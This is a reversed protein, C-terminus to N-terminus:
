SRRACRRPWPTIAAHMRLFPVGWSLFGTVLMLLGPVLALAVLLPVGGRRLRAGHEVITTSVQKHVAHVDDQLYALPRIQMSHLVAPPLVSFPCSPHLVSTGPAPRQWLPVAGEPKSVGARIVTPRLGRSTPPPPAPLRSTRSPHNPLGGAGGTTKMVPRSWIIFSRPWSMPNQFLRCSGSRIGSESLEM